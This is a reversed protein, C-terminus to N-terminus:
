LLSGQKPNLYDADVLAKQLENEHLKEVLRILLLAALAADYLAAHHHVGSIEHAQKTLGFHEGLSQLGYSDLNPYLSRAMKLTDIAVSPEWDPLAFKLSSVEVRVNHGVIPTDQIWTLIDDSIDEITPSSCVDDDTIGHIRTVSHSISIKPKILWHFKKGSLKRDVVEVMALEIIEPPVAGNGEVDIVWFRNM